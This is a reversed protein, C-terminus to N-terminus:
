KLVSKPKAVGHSEPMSTAGTGYNCVAPTPGGGSSLEYNAETSFIDSIKEAMEEFFKTWVM